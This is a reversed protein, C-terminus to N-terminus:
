SLLGRLYGLNDALEETFKAFPYLVSERSKTSVLKLHLLFVFLAISLPLFALALFVSSYIGIPSCSLASLVIAFTPTPLPLVITKKKAKFNKGNTVAYKYARRLTDRFSKEFNHPMEIADVFKLSQDGFKARLKQSVITDDSGFKLETDFGFVSRLASTRFTMNAGVLSAVYDGDKPSSFTFYRRIRKLIGVKTELDDLTRSSLPNTAAVYRRNFTDNTQGIVPGSFAVVTSDMTSWAKMVEEMWNPAPRCDDDIFSVQPTHVLSFGLNRAAPLGINKPASVFRLRTDRNQSLWTRVSFATDDKSGDDVVIVDIASVITQKKVCDLLEIIENSRNYTCIVLTTQQNTELM